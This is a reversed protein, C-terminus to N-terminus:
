HSEGEALTAWRSQENQWHWANVNEIARRLADTMWADAGDLPAPVLDHVGAPIDAASSPTPYTNM